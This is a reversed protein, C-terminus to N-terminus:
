LKISQNIPRKYISRDKFDIPVCYTEYKSLGFWGSKDWHKERCHWRWIEKIANHRDIIEGRRMFRRGLPPAPANSPNHDEGSKGDMESAKAPKQEIGWDKRLENALHDLEEIKKLAEKKTQFGIAQSLTPYYKDSCWAEDRGNVYSLPHRKQLYEAVIPMNKEIAEIAAQIEAKTYSM